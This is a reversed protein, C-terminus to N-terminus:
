SRRFLQTAYKWDENTLCCKILIMSLMVISISIVAYHNIGLSLGIIIVVVFVFTIGILKAMSSLDFKVRLLRNIFFVQLTASAVFSASTASAAGVIGLRPILLFSLIVSAAASLASIKYQMNVYKTSSLAVTIPTIIAQCTIGVLLIELATSAAAYESGYLLEIAEHALFGLAVSIPVLFVSTARITRNLLHEIELTQGKSWHCAITPVMILQVAQSPLLLCQAMLAAASYLGVDAESMFHGIMVSDIEAKITAVSNAFVVYVGFGLLMAITPGLNEKAPKVLSKRIGGVSVLSFLVVPLVLAWAAGKLGHGSVVLLVTLAAILINQAINIMAFFRMQRLGNLFGLTTKEVAIFPLAISIIRLLSALEPMHFFHNAIPSAGAYLLLGMVCGIAFSAAIGDTLLMSTRPADEKFEAVYKTLAAGIGFGAFLMGFSYVTFSLTYLGLDGEGLYRALFVRLAFHVLASIALSAFSFGVDHVFRRM